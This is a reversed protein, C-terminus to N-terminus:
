RPISPPAAECDGGRGAPSHDSGSRQALILLPGAVLAFGVVIGGAWRQDAAPSTWALDFEGFWSAAFPTDRTLLIVGFGALFILAAVLVGARDNRASRAVAGGDVGLVASLLTWGAVFIAVSILLRAASNEQTAELLPTGYLAVTVIILAACGNVPNALLDRLRHAPILLSADEHRLLEALTVPGGVTVLVPLVIALLLYQGVQVSLLVGSYTAIGSNLAVM